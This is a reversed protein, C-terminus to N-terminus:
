RRAFGPRRDRFHQTIPGTRLADSSNTAVPRRMWGSSPAAAASCSQGLNQAQYTGVGHLHYAAVIPDTSSSVTLGFSCTGLSAATLVHAPGVSVSVYDGNGPDPVGVEGSVWTGLLPGGRWENLLQPTLAAEPEGHTSAAQAAESAYMAAWGKQLNSLGQGIGNGIGNGIDQVLLYGGVGLVVAVIGLGIFLWMWTNSPDYPKQEVPQGVPACSLSFLSHRSALRRPSGGVGSGRQATPRLYGVTGDILHDTQRTM